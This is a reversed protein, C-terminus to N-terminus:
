VEALVLRSGSSSDPRTQKRIDNQLALKNAKRRLSNLAIYRRRSDNQIGGRRRADASMGPPERSRQASTGRLQQAGKAGPLIKPGDNTKGDDDLECDTIEWDTDVDSRPSRLSDMSQTRDTKKVAILRPSAVGEVDSMVSDPELDTIDDDGIDNDSLCNRDQRDEGPKLRPAFLMDEAKKQIESKKKKPKFESGRQTAEDVLSYSTKKNANGGVFDLLESTYPFAKQGGLKKDKLGKIPTYKVKDINKLNKFPADSAEDGSFAPNEHAFAERERVRFEEDEHNLLSLPQGHSKMASIRKKRQKPTPEPPLDAVTGKLQMKELRGDSEQLSEDIIVEQSLLRSRLGKQSKPRLRPHFPTDPRPSSDVDSLLQYNGGENDSYDSGVVPITSLPPFGAARPDERPTHPGRFDSRLHPDDDDDDDYDESVHDTIAFSASTMPM